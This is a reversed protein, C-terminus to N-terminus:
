KELGLRPMMHISFNDPLDKGWHTATQIPTHFMISPNLTDLQEFQDKELRQVRVDFGSQKSTQWSEVWDIAAVM